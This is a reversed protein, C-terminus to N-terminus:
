TRQKEREGGRRSRANLIFFKGTFDSSGCRQRFFSDATHQAMNTRKIGDWVERSIVSVCMIGRIVNAM